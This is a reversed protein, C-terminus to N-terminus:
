RRRWYRRWGYGLAVAWAVAGTSLWVLSGVLDTTLAPREFNPWVWWVRYLLGALWVLMLLSWLVARM